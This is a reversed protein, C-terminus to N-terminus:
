PETQLNIEVTLAKLFTFFAILHIEVRDELKLRGPTEFTLSHPTGKSFFYFSQPWDPNSQLIEEFNLSASQENRGVIGNRASLGEIEEKLCIPYKRSVADIIKEGYRSTGDQGVEYLYFGAADVDEHFDLHASFLIPFTLEKILAVELPPSSRKFQRNLDFGAPNERRHYEFGAPNICPFIMFDFSKLCPFLFQPSELLSMLAAVGAPEDGHIGASLCISKKNQQFPTQDQSIYVAFFPHKEGRYELHGPIHIQICPSIKDLKEIRRALDYYNREKEM